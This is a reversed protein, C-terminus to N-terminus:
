CTNSHVPQPYVSTTPWLVIVTCWLYNCEYHYFYEGGFGGIEQGIWKSFNQNYQAPWWNRDEPKKTKGNGELIIWSWESFPIDFEDTLLVLSAIYMYSFM